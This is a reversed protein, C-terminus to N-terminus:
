KRYSDSECKRQSDYILFGRCVELKIRSGLLCRQGCGVRRDGVGSEFIFGDVVMLAELREDM